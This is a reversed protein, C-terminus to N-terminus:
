TKNQKRMTHTILLLSMLLDILTLSHTLMPVLSLVVCLLVACITLSQTRLELLWVVSGSAAAVRMAKLFAEVNRDFRKFSLFIKVSPHGSAALEPIENMATEDPDLLVPHQFFDVMSNAQADAIDRRLGEAMQEGKRPFSM